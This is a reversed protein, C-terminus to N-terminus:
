RTPQRATPRRRWWSRAATTSSGGTLDVGEPLAGGGHLYKHVADRGTFLTGSILVEDGARLSRITEEGVPTQLRVQAMIANRGMICLAPQHFCDTASRGLEKGVDGLLEAIGAYAEANQHLTRVVAEADDMSEAGILALLRDRETAVETIRDAQAALRTQLAETETRATATFREADRLRDLATEPTLDEGFRARIRENEWRMREM